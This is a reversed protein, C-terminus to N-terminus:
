IVGRDILVQIEASTKGLLERLVAQTDQGLAPPARRYEVPTTALKLPSALLPTEGGHANPISRRLGRHQVQPDAFVQEFNNIPGCPVQEAELKAIWHA